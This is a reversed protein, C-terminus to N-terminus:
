PRRARQFIPAWLNISARITHGDFDQPYGPALAITPAFGHQYYSYTLGTSVYRTVAVSLMASGAYSTADGYRSSSSYGTGRMARAVASVQSRRNLLGGIMATATDAFLPEPWTEVYQLGRSYSLAASWTRGIEHNLRAMGTARYRLPSEGSRAAATGTGFSLMTRRSFSLARSYDVGADINHGTYRRDRDDYYAQSYGYGLRLSLGRGLEHNLRASASHKEFRGLVGAATRGRYSYGASFTQRRGIRNTYGLEGSYSAYHELSAPFDEDAVVLDGVRPELLAPFMSRLSFPQYTAGARVSFGAGLNVSTDLSAYERRIFQNTLRPYYRATTGASAALSVSSRTLSYALTGAGTTAGGQFSGTGDGTLLGRGDIDFIVNKDWSTGISGSATLLQETDGAGSGFLGRYPREPRWEQAHAAAAVGLAAIGVLSAFTLKM